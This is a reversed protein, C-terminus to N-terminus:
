EQLERQEASGDESVGSSSVETTIDFQAHVGAAIEASPIEIGQLLFGFALPGALAGSATQAAALDGITALDIQTRGKGIPDELFSAIPFISLESPADAAATASGAGDVSLELLSSRGAPTEFGVQLGARGSGQMDLDSLEVPLLLDIRDGPALGMATMAEGTLRMPDEGKAEAAYSTNGVPGLFGYAHVQWDVTYDQWILGSEPYSRGHGYALAISGLPGNLVLPAPTYTRKILGGFRTSNFKRESTSVAPLSAAVAGMTWKIQANADPKTLEWHNSENDSSTSSRRVRPGGVKAHASWSM